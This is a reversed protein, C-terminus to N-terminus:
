MARKQEFFLRFIATIVQNCDHKSKAAQPSRRITSYQLAWKEAFDFREM